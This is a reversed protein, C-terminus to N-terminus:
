LNASYVQRFLQKEKLTHRLDGLYYSLSNTYKVLEMATDFGQRRHKM